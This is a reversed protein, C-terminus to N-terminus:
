RLRTGSGIMAPSAARVVGLRHLLELPPLTHRAARAACHGCAIFVTGHRVPPPGAAGAEAGSGTAGGGAGAGIGGAGAGRRAPPENLPGTRSFWAQIGDRGWIHQDTVRLNTERQIMADELVINITGGAVGGFEATPARIVEVREILDAPMSRVAVAGHSTRGRARRRGPSQTANRDMGRMRIELSGSAPGTTQVGPLQRLVDSVTDAGMREIDDRGIIV